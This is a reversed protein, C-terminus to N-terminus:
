TTCVCCISAPSSRGPIIAAMKPKSSSFTAAMQVSAAAMAAALGGPLRRALRRRAVARADLVKQLFPVPGVDDYRAKAGSGVVAGEGVTRGQGVAAVAGLLQAVIYLVANRWSIRGLSWAGITIAPNLHGGSIRM